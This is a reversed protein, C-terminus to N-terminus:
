ESEGLSVSCSLGRIISNILYATKCQLRLILGTNVLYKSCARAESNIPLMNTVELLFIVDLSLIFTKM